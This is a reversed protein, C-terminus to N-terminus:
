EVHMHMVKVTYKNKERVSDTESKILPKLSNLVQVRLFYSLHLGSWSNVPLSIEQAPHQNHKTSHYQRENCFLLFKEALTDPAANSIIIM